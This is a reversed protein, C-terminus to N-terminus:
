MDSRLCDSRGKLVLDEPLAIRVAALLTKAGPAYMFKEISTRVFRVIELM